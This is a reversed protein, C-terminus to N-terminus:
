VIVFYSALGNRSTGDDSVCIYLVQADTLVYDLVKKENKMFNKLKEKDSSTQTFCSLSFLLIAGFLISKM